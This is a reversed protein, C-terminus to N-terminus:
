MYERLRPRVGLWGLLAIALAFAPDLWEAVRLTADSAAAMTAFAEHNIAITRQVAADFRDFTARPGDERSGLSLDLADAHKGQKELARVREDASLYGTFAGIAANAASDEGAFTVNRAEDVLLGTVRGSALDASGVKWPGPRSLLQTEKVRFAAEYDGARSRDLLWRSEDGAADSSLARVRWLFHVSNFADDHIARLNDSAHAFRAVLYWTFAVALITAALLVPATRRRMRHRIVVQGALLAGILLGGAGLALATYGKARSRTLTYQSEMRSRAMGDLAAAQPLIRTHMLSTALRVLALSGERDGGEHLWQARAALELYRGLEESLVILPVREVSTASLNAASDVLKRSAASRRLEFMESAVDRDAAVGLLSNALETDLGALQANLEDAAVIRPAADYVISRLAARDASMAQLGVLFVLASAVWVAAVCARLRRPTTWRTSASATM